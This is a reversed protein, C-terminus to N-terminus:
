QRSHLKRAAPFCDERWLCKEQDCESSIPSAFCDFNGETRQIAHILKIKSVRSTKIGYDKALKRIEQMNM